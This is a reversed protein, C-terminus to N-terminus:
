RVVTRWDHGDWDHFEGGWARGSICGTERIEALRDLADKTASESIGSGTLVHQVLSLDPASILAVLEPSLQQDLCAAVFESRIGDGPDEPLCYGNDTARPHGDETTRYNGDHRDSSALVYDLIAMREVDLRSYTPLPFAELPVEQQLSGILPPVEVSGGDDLGTNSEYIRLDTHPVVDLGLLDSLRSAAVERNLASLEPQSDRLAELEGESPKFYAHTGELQTLELTVNSGPEKPERADTFELTLAQSLPDFEEISKTVLERAETTATLKRLHEVANAITQARSTPGVDSSDSWGDVLPLDVSREAEPEEEEADKRLDSAM